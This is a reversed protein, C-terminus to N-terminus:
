PSSSSVPQQQLGIWGPSGSRHVHRRAEITSEILERGSSPFTQRRPKFLGGHPPGTHHPHGHVPCMTNRLSGKASASTQSALCAFAQQSALPQVRLASQWRTKGPLIGGVCRSCAPQTVTLWTQVHAPAAGPLLTVPLFTTTAQLCQTRHHLHPMQTSHTPFLDAKALSVRRVSFHGPVTRRADASGFRYKILTWLAPFM